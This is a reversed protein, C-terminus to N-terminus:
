GRLRPLFRGTRGAWTQYQQGFRGAMLADEKAVRSIMVATLGGLFAGGIFWNASLLFFSLGLMYFATYMPHRIWRYPGSTVLTHQDHLHLTPSFNQGLEHHVWALMADAAAGAGAGAFRGGAAVPNLGVVDM